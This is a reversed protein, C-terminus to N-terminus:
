GGCDPMAAGGAPGPMVAPWRGIGIPPTIGGLPPTMGGLPPTIDGLGQNMGGQNEWGQNEWGQNEWERTENGRIESGRRLGAGPGTSRPSCGEWERFLEWPRAVM